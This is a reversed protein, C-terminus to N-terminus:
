CCCGYSIELSSASLGDAAICNHQLRDTLGATSSTSSNQNAIFPLLVYAM